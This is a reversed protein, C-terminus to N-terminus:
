TVPTFTFLAYGDSKNQKSTVYKNEDVRVYSRTGKSVISYAGFSEEYITFLMHDGDMSAKGNLCGCTCKGEGDGIYMSSSPNKIKYSGDIMQEFKFHCYQDNPQWKVTVPSSERALGVDFHWYKNNVCNVVKYKLTSINTALKKTSLGATVLSVCIKQTVSVNWKGNGMCQITVDSGEYCPDCSLTATAGFTTNGPNTLKSHTYQVAPPKGCDIPKCARINYKGEWQGTTDCTVKSNTLSRLEFGLNCHITATSGIETFGLTDLQFVGNDIVPLHGCGKPCTPLPNSWTGNDTCISSVHINEDYKCIYIIRAGIDRMNGLQESHIDKNLPPADCETKLCTNKSDNPTCTEGNSCKDRCVKHLIKETWNKKESYVFTPAVILEAGLSSSDVTSLICLQSRREFQFSKCRERALCAGHCLELSWHTLATLLKLNKLQYGFKLQIGQSHVATLIGFITILFLLTQEM